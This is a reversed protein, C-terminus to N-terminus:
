VRRLILSLIFFATNTLVILPGPQVELFNALAMGILVAALGISVAVITVARLSRGINKAAAPPIIILAGLLLIGVIKIGIAIMVTLLLLLAFESSEVSQGESKAFDTSLTLRTFDKYKYLTLAIVILGFFIGILANVASIATIEGFLSELLEESSPSLLAGIALSTTFFVGVIADIPLTTYREIMMISIVGAFLFVIAGITPSVGVLIAIGIGPLAVHSLADGALSLRYLVIFIGLLAAGIGVVAGVTFGLVLNIDM